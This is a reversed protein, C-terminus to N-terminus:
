ADRVTIKMKWICIILMYIYDSVITTNEGENTTVEASVFM